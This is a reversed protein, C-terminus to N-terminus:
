VRLLPEAVTSFFKVLSILLIGGGDKIQLFAATRKLGSARPVQGTEGERPRQVLRGQERFNWRPRARPESGDLRSELGWAM